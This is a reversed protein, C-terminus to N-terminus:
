VSKDEEGPWYLTAEVMWGGGSRPGSAVRGGYIAARERMGVLGQGAGLSDVPGVQRGDDAVAIHVADGDRILTVDVRSVGKAYRLVNTLSEQVIRFVTLRFNQDDPLPPGAMVTRLPLGAARFGDLLGSLQDGSPAPALPAAEVGNETRLVGLVRRMDALATRGTASLQDLVQGAREPDKRVVVAAGDSLAIMVSLSHAVVDHMERAIRTRENASALKTNDAAWRQLEADHLRDRRVTVGIGAAIINALILVLGSVLGVYGPVDGSAIQKAIEPPMRIGMVAMMPVAALVAAAIARVAPQTTAVTYVAFWSAFSGSGTSTLMVILMDVLAVAALVLLPYRRRWVLAAGGALLLLMPSWEGDAATMAANPLGFLVHIGILVWDMAVPHMHFYRRIPGRRKSSIETFSVAATREAAEKVSPKDTM